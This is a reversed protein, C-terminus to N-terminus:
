RLPSQRSSTTRKSIADAIGVAVLIEFVILVALMTYGTIGEGFPPFVCDVFVVIEPMETSTVDQAHAALELYLWGSVAGVLAVILLLMRFARYYDGYWWSSIARSLAFFLTLAYGIGLLNSPLVSAQEDIWYFVSPPHPYHMAVIVTHAALFAVGLGIFASLAESWRSASLALPIACIMAASLDPLGLLPPPDYMCM